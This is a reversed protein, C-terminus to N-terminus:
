SPQIVTRELEPQAPREPSSFPEQRATDFALSIDPTSLTPAGQIDQSVSLEPANNSAAKLFAPMKDEIETSFTELEEMTPPNDEDRLREKAVDLINHEYDEIDQKHRLLRALNEQEEQYADASTASNLEMAQLRSQSLLIERDLKEHALKIRESIDDIQTVVSEYLAAYQADQTLLMRLMSQHHDRQKDKESQGYIDTRSESLFRQIRGTPESIIENALDIRDREAAPKSDISSTEIHEPM